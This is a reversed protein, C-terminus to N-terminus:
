KKPELSRYMTCYTIKHIIYNGNKSLKGLSEVACSRGKRMEIRHKSEKSGTKEERGRRDVEM